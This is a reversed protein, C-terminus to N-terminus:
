EDNMKETVDFSEVGLTFGITDEGEGISTQRPKDRIAAAKFTMGEGTSRDIFWASIRGGKNFITLLLKYIAVSCDVVRIELTDPTKLGEKYTIGVKNQGSAGRTLRNKKNYIYELTDVDSFTYNAGNYSFGADGESIQFLKAM